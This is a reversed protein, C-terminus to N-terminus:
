DVDGACAGMGYDGSRIGSDATVDAFTGNGANRFLRHRARSAPATDAISGGDVVFLDVWGDSEFVLFAAGSGVTEGLDKEPRAGNVHTMALGSAAAADTFTVAPPAAGGRQAFSAGALRDVAVVGAALTGLLALITRVPRAGGSGSEADR